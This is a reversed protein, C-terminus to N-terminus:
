ITQSRFWLPHVMCLLLPSPSPSVSPPLSFSLLISFSLYLNLPLLWGKEEEGAMVRGESGCKLNILLGEQLQWIKYSCRQTQSHTNAHAHPPPPPPTPDDTHVQCLLFGIEFGALWHLLLWKLLWCNSGCWGSGRSCCLCIESPTKDKDWHAAWTASSWRETGGFYFFCM